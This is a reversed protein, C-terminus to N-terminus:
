APISAPKNSCSGFRNFGGVVSGGGEVAEVGLRPGASWQGDSGGGASTETKGSEGPPGALLNQKVQERHTLAESEAIAIGEGRQRFAVGARGECDQRRWEGVEETSKICPRDPSVPSSNECQERGEEIVGPSCAVGQHGGDGVGRHITPCACDRDISRGPQRAHAARAGTRHHSGRPAPPAAPQYVASFRKAVRRVAAKAM